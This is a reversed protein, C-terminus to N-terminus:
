ISRPTHSNASARRKATNGTTDVIQDELSKMVEVGPPVTDNIFMPLSFDGQGFM